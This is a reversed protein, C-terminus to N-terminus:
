IISQEMTHNPSRQLFDLTWLHTSAVKKLDVRKDTAMYQNKAGMGWLEAQRVSTSDYGM